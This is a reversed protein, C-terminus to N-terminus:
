RYGKSSQNTCATGIPDGPQYKGGQYTTGDHWQAWPVTPCRPGETTLVRLSHPPELRDADPSDLKHAQSFLLAPHPFSEAQIWRRALPTLWVLRGLMCSVKRHWERVAEVAEVHGEVIGVRHGVGPSRRGAVRAALRSSSPAGILDDVVAVMGAVELRTGFHHGEEV